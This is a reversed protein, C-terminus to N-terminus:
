SNSFKLSAIGFSYAYLAKPLESMVIGKLGGKDQVTPCKGLLVLLRYQTSFGQFGYQIKSLVFKFCESTQNACREFVQFIQCFVLHGKAPTSLNRELRGIKRARWKVSRSRLFFLHEFGFQLDSRSVVLFMTKQEKNGLYCKCGENKVGLLKRM